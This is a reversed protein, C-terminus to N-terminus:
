EKQTTEIIWDAMLQLVLPSFTEEIRFYEYESGTGAKQFLHNLGPIEKIVYQGNKGNKFCSEVFAINEGPNVQKDLEGYLAMVPCNIKTLTAKNDLALSYRWWPNLVQKVQSEHRGRPWNLKTIEDASLNDYIAWLKKAATSSDTSEKAIQYISKRWNRELEIDEPSKGMQESQALLQGLVVDEFSNVFGALGLIFAVDDSESAAVSAAIGGESHGIIGIKEPLIEARTKLYSIGALADAAFDGTTSQDFRGESGGMGRDDYRLVAIGKRTLYDAIIWFPKHRAIEENRDQQGSGTVLVVAPFKGRQEPITLTGALKIGAKKNEFIVEEQLYPVPTKPEQPRLLEPLKDTRKFVVPFNTGQQRFFGEISNGENTLKGAIEIGLASIRSIVSDNRYILENCPIDGTAQDIINLAAKYSDESKLSIILGMRLNALNPIILEGVWIGQLSTNEAAQIQMSSGIDMRFFLLSFTLASFLLFRIKM